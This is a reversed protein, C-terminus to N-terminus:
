IFSKEGGIRSKKNSRNKGGGKKDVLWILVSLVKM